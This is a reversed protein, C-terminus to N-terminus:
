QNDVTSKSQQKPLKQASKSASVVALYVPANRKNKFNSMKLYKNQM